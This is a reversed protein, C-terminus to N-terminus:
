PAPRQGSDLFNEETAGTYNDNSDKVIARVLNNAAHQTGPLYLHVQLKSLIVKQLDLHGDHLSLGALLNSVENPQYVDTTSNTIPGDANDRASLLYQFSSNSGPRQQIWLNFAFPGSTGWAFPGVSVSEQRSAQCLLLTIMM